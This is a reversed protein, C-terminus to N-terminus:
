RNLWLHKLRRARAQNKGTRLIWRSGRDDLVTEFHGHQVLTHVLGPPLYYLRAFEAQHYATTCNKQNSKLTGDHNYEEVQTYSWPRGSPKNKRPLKGPMRDFYATM